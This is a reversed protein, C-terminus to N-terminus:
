PLGVYPYRNMMALMPQTQPAQQYMARGESLTMHNPGSHQELLRVSDNEWDCVPCIEYSGPNHITAYGCCPCPNLYEQEGEISIEIGFRKLETTLYNNAVGYLYTRLSRLIYREATGSSIVLEEESEIWHVMGPDLLATAPSDLDLDRADELQEQKERESLEQSWKQAILDQAESRQM